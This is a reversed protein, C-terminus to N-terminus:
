HTPQTANAQNSPQNPEFTDSLPSQCGKAALVARLLDNVNGGYTWKGTRPDRQQTM